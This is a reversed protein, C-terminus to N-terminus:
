LSKEKWFQMALVFCTLFPFIQKLLFVHRSTPVKGGGWCCGTAVHWTSPARCSGCSRLALPPQALFCVKLFYIVLHFCNASFQLAALKLSQLAREAKCCPISCARCVAVRSGGPHQSCGGRSLLVQHKPEISCPVWHLAFLRSELCNERCRPGSCQLFSSWSDVFGTDKCSRLTCDRCVGEGVSVVTGLVLRVFVRCSDSNRSGVYLVM